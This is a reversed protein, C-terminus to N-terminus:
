LILLKLIMYFKNILNIFKYILTLSEMLEDDTDKKTERLCHYQGFKIPIIVLHWNVINTARLIKPNGQCEVIISPELPSNNTHTIDTMIQHLLFSFQSSNLINILENMLFYYVWWINVNIGYKKTELVFFPSSPSQEVNKCIEKIDSKISSLQIRMAIEANLTHHCWM